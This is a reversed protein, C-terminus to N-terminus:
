GPSSIVRESDSSRDEDDLRLQSPELLLYDAILDSM